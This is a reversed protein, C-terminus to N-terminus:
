WVLCGDGDRGKKKGRAQARNMVGRGPGNDAAPQALVPRLDRLAERVCAHLDYRGEFVYLAEVEFEVVIQIVLASGHRAASSQGVSRVGASDWLMRKRSGLVRAEESGVGDM